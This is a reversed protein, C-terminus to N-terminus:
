ELPQGSRRRRPGTLVFLSSGLLVFTSPLPVPTYEIEAYVETVRLQTSGAVNRQLAIQLDDIDSIDLPGGDSDTTYFVSSILNYNGSLDTIANGRWTTNAGTKFGANVNAEVPVPLPWPGDVYRALVHFIISDITAEALDGGPDDMDLYFIQGPSSCCYYAYSTDADASDLIDQWGGGFTSFGGSVAIGSPRLTISDCLAAHNLLPCLTLVFLVLANKRM